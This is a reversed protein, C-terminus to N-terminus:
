IWMTHIKLCMFSLLTDKYIPIIHTNGFKIRKSYQICNQSVEYTEVNEVTPRLFATNM